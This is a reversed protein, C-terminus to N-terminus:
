TRLVRAGFGVSQLVVHAVVAAVQASALSLDHVEEEADASGGGGLHHFSEGVRRAVGGDSREQADELLLAVDAVLLFPAGVDVQGDCAAVRCALRREGM